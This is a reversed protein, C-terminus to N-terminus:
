LFTGIPDQSTYVRFFEKNSLIRQMQVALFLQDSAVVVVTPSNAMIEQAFSPGSLFCLPQQARGLADLIAHGILQKSPLYLGKATSCLLVNPPIMDRHERIWLPTKQCPLALIVVVGPSALEQQLADTTCIGRIVATTGSERKYESLYKPNYGNRNICECQSSDRMYLVVENMQNMAAVHAMATGYSGAGIVLVKQKSSQQQGRLVIDLVPGLAARQGRRLEKAIRSSARRLRERDRLRLLYSACGIGGLFSLSSVVGLWLFSERSSSRQQVTSVSVMM